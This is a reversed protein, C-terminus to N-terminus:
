ESGSRAATHTPQPGDMSAVLLPMLEHLRMLPVRGPSVGDSFGRAKLADLLAPRSSLVHVPVDWPAGEGSVLAPPQHDGIVILVLDRTRPQSVFGGLTTLTYDIARVYSPGLNLWDPPEAWAKQYEAEDYPTATLM